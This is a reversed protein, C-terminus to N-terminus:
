EILSVEIEQVGWNLAEQHSNFYLDIRNGKIAGGIDEAVYEVGDIEVISGLPIVKPDVAITRGETAVTGSYTYGDAYDGCCKKCPCYATIKFEGLSKKTETKTEELVEVDEKTEVDNNLEVSSMYPDKTVLPVGYVPSTERIVPTKYEVDEGLWLCVPTALIISGVILILGNVIFEKVNM